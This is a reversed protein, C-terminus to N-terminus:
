ISRAAAILASVEADGVRVIEAYEPTGYGAAAADARLQAQRADVVALAGALLSAREEAAAEAASRAALEAGYSSMLSRASALEHPEFPDTPDPM